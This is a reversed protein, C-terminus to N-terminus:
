NISFLAMLVYPAPPIAGGNNVETTSLPSYYSWGIAIGGPIYAVIFVIYFWIFKLIEVLNYITLALSDKSFSYLITVISIGTYIISTLLVGSLLLASYGSPPWLNM